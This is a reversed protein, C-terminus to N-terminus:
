STTVPLSIVLSFWFSSFSASLKKVIPRNIKATMASIVPMKMM